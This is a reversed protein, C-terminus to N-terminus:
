VISYYILIRLYFAYYRIFYLDLDNILKPDKFMQVKIITYFIIPFKRELANNKSSSFVQLNWKM